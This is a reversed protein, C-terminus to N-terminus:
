KWRTWTKKTKNAISKDFPFVGTLTKFKAFYDFLYFLYFVENENLKTTTTNSVILIHSMKQNTQACFTTTGWVQVSLTSM